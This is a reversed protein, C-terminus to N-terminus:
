VSNIIVVSLDAFCSQNTSVFYCGVDLRECIAITGKPTHESLVDLSYSEIPQHIDKAVFCALAEGTGTIMALRLEKVLRDQTM